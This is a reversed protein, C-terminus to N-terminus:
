IDFRELKFTCGQFSTGYPLQRMAWSKWKRPVAFREWSHVEGTSLTLTIRYKWMADLAAM